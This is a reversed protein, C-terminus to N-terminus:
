NGSLRPPPTFAKTTPGRFFSSKKRSGKDFQVPVKQYKDERKKQMINPLIKGKLANINSNKRKRKFVLTLNKMLNIKM